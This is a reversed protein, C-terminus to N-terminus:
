QCTPGRVRVDGGEELRQGHEIKLESNTLISLLSFSLKHPIPLAVKRRNESWDEFAIEKECAKIQASFLLLTSNHVQAISAILSEFRAPCHSISFRHSDLHWNSNVVTLKIYNKFRYWLSDSYHSLCRGSQRFPLNLKLVHYVLLPSAVHGYKCGSACYNFCACTLSIILEPEACGPM